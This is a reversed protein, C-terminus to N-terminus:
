FRPINKCFLQQKRCKTSFWEFDRNYSGSSLFCRMCGHVSGNIKVLDTSVGHCVLSSLTLELSVKNLNFRAIMEEALSEQMLYFLAFTLLM